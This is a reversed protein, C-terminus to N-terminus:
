LTVRGQGSLSMADESRRGAEQGETGIEDKGKSGIREEVVTRTDVLIERNFAKKAM